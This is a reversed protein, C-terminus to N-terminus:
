NLAIYNSSLMYILTISVPKAQTYGILVKVDEGTLDDFGNYGRYEINEDKPYSEYNLKDTAEKKKIIVKLNKDNASFSLSKLEKNDYSFEVYFDCPFWGKTAGDTNHIVLIKFAHNKQTTAQAFSNLSVLALLLNFFITKSM